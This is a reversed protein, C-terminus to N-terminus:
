IKNFDEISKNIESLLKETGQIIEWLGADMYMDGYSDHLAEAENKQMQVYKRSAKLLTIAKEYDEYEM